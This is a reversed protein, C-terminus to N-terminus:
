RYKDADKEMEADEMRYRKIKWEIRYKQMKRNRLKWHLIAFFNEQTKEIRVEDMTKLWSNDTNLM